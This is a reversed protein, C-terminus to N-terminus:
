GGFSPVCKSVGGGVSVEHSSQDWTYPFVDEFWRGAIVVLHQFLSCDIADDGLLGYILDESLSVIVLHASEDWFLSLLPVILVAELPIVRGVGWSTEVVGGDRHIQATGSAKSVSPLTRLCM